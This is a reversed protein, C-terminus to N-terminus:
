ILTSALEILLWYACFFWLEKYISHNQRMAHCDITEGGRTLTEGNDRVRRSINQV